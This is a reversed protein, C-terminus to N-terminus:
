IYIFIYRSIDIRAVWWYMYWYMYPEEDMDVSLIVEHFIYIKDYAISEFNRSEFVELDEDFIDVAVSKWILGFLDEIM